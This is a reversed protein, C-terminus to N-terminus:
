FNGAVFVCSVVGATETRLRSNGLSVPVFGASIAMDIESKSFDGEPGILILISKESTIADTLAMTKEECHAICKKGKFGQNIFNKFETAQNIEPFNLNRSQKMASIAVKEIRDTKYVRRESHECLLPTIEEIGIEVAKEVFWEFRDANKTPAIAIHLFGSRKPIPKVEVIDLACKKPNADTIKATYM